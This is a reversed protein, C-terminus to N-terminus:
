PLLPPNKATTQQETIIVVSTTPSYIFKKSEINELVMVIKNVPDGGVQM